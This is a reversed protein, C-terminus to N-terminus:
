NAGTTSKWFTGAEGPVGSNAEKLAKKLQSNETQYQEIMQRLENIECQFCEGDGTLLEQHKGCFKM